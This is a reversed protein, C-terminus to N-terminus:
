VDVDVKFKIIEHIAETNTINIAKNVAEVTKATIYDRLIWCVTMKIEEDSEAKPFITELFKKSIYVFESTEKEDILEVKPLTAM